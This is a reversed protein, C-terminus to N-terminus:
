RKVFFSVFSRIQKWNNICINTSHRVRWCKQRFFKCSFSNTKLKYVYVNISFRISICKKVIFSAFFCIRNCNYVCINISYRVRKWNHACIRWCFNTQSKSEFYFISQLLSKLLRSDFKLWSKANNIIKLWTQILKKKRKYNQTM